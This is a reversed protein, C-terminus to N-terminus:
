GFNGKLIERALPNEVEHQLIPKLPRAGYVPDFVAEGIRDPAAESLQPLVLM